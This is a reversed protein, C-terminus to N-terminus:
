RSAFVESERSLTVNSSHFYKHDDRSQRIHTAMGPQLKPPYNLRRQPDSGSPRRTPDLANFLLTFFGKDIFGVDGVRVADYLGGPAPELLARGHAPYRTALEDSFTYADAM